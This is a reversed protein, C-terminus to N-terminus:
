PTTSAPNDFVSTLYKTFCNKKKPRLIAKIIHKNHRRPPNKGWTSKITVDDLIRALEILTPSM